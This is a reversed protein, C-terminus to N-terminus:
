DSHFLKDCVVITPHSFLMNIYLSVSTMALGILAIDMLVGLSVLLMSQINRGLEGSSGRREPVM